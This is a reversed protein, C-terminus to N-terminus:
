KLNWLQEYQEPYDEIGQYNGEDDLVAEGINEETLIQGPLPTEAAKKNDEGNFYRALADMTSWGLMNTPYGAWATETGAKLAELNVADPAEGLINIGSLGATTLAPGVGQTLDGNGFVVWKVDSHTQLYSAVNQPTQTGVDTLEQDQLDVSCGSCWKEVAKEFSTTFAALIPFSQINIVVAKGEGESHVVFYAAVLEGYTAEQQSGGINAVIADNPPIPPDETTNEVVAIGESKAQAIQKTFFAPPFGCNCIADPHKALAAEFASVASAQTSGANVTSYNWGLAKAAAAQANSVRLAVPQPTVLLSIITKGAAPKKAMPPLGITTPNESFEELYAEAEKLGPDASKSGTEAATTSSGESPASSESTTSSSSGCATLFLALAALASLTAGIRKWKYTM